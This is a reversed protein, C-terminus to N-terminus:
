RRQSVRVYDVEFRGPFTTASPDGGTSGVALNLIILHPGREYTWNASDPAGDKNFEDAWVVRYDAPAGPNQAQRTDTPAWLAAALLV